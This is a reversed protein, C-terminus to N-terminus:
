ASAQLAINPMTGGEMEITTGLYRGKDSL